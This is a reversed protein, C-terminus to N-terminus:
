SLFGRQEECTRFDYMVQRWFEESYSCRGGSRALRTQPRLKYERAAWTVFRRHAAHRDRCCLWPAHRDRGEHQEEVICGLLDQWVVYGETTKTAGLPSAGNSQTLAPADCDDPLSMSLTYVADNLLGAMDKAAWDPVTTTGVSLPISPPSRDSKRRKPRLLSAEAVDVLSTKDDVANEVNAALQLEGDESECRRHEAQSAAREGEVAEARGALQLEGDGPPGQESESRRHEAQPLAPQDAELEGDGPPAQESEFRRRKAQPSAVENAGAEVSGAVQLKGDGLPAQVSEFRRRKAQPSMPISGARNRQAGNRENRSIPQAGEASSSVESTSGYSCQTKPQSTKELLGSGRGDVSCDDSSLQGSIGNPVAQASGSMSRPACPDMKEEGRSVRDLTGSSVVCQDVTDDASGCGEGAEAVSREEPSEIDNPLEAGCLVAEGSSEPGVWEAVTESAAVTVVRVATPSLVPITEGLVALEPPSSHEADRRPEADSSHLKEDEWVEEDDRLEQSLEQSAQQPEGWSLVGGSSPVDVDCGVDQDGASLEAGAPVGADDPRQQEESSDARREAGGIAYVSGAAVADQEQEQEQAGEGDGEGAALLGLAAARAELQQRLGDATLEGDCLRQLLASLRPAM